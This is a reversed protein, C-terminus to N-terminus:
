RHFEFIPNLPNDDSSRNGSESSAIAQQEGDPVATIQNIGWRTEQLNGGPEQQHPGQIRPIHRKDNRQTEHV